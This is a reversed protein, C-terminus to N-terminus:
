WYELEFTADPRYLRRLLLLALGAAPVIETAHRPPHVHAGPIVSINGASVANQSCPPRQLLLVHEAVHDISIVHKPLRVPRDLAVVAGTEGASM